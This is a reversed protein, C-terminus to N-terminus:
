ISTASNAFATSIATGFFSIAALCIVAVLTLALGYEVISAGEEKGALFKKVSTPTIPMSREEETDALGLL